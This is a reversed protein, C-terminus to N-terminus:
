PAARRRKFGGVPAGPVAPKPGAAAAPAAGGEIATLRTQAQQQLQGLMQASPGQPNPLSILKKYVLAADAKKGVEDLVAGAGYLAPGNNSDQQLVQNFALLAQDNKKQRALAFGLALMTQPDNSLSAAARLAREADDVKGSTLLANGLSRAAEANRPDLQAARTFQAVADENKQLRLKVSGLLMHATFDDSLKAAKELNAEASELKSDNIALQGLGILAPAFDSKIKLAADFEARAKEAGDKTNLLYTGFASHTIAAGPDAKLAAEYQVKAEELNGQRLAINGLATLYTAAHSRDNDLLFSLEYKVDEVNDVVIRGPQEAILHARARMMGRQVAPDTPTVERARSFAAVAELYHGASIAKEARALHPAAAGSQAMRDMQLQWLHLALPLGILVATGLVLNRSLNNEM